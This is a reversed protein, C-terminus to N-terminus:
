ARRKLNFRIPSEPRLVIPSSLSPEVESGKTLSIEFNHVIKSLVSKMEYMAFRQGPCNRPGISFPMYTYLSKKEVSQEVSFREPKFQKADEYYKPDRFITYFPIVVDSGKPM